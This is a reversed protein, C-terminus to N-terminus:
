SLECSKIFYRNLFERLSEEEVRTMTKLSKHYVQLLYSIWVRMSNETKTEEPYMMELVEDQDMAEVNVRSMRMQDKEPLNWKSVDQLNRQKKKMLSTKCTMYKDMERKIKRDQTVLEKWCSSNRQILNRSLEKILGIQEKLSKGLDNFINNLCVFIYSQKDNTNGRDSFKSYIEHLEAFSNSVYHVHKSLTEM